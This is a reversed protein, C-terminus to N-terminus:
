PLSIAKGDLDAERIQWIGTIRVIRVHITAGGNTGTAVVTMRIRTGQEM